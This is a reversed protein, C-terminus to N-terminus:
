AKKGDPNSGMVESRRRRVESRAGSASELVVSVFWYDLFLNQPFNFYDRNGSDADAAAAVVSATSLHHM